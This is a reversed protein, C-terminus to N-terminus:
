IIYGFSCYELFNGEAELQKTALDAKGVWHILALPVNCWNDGGPFKVRGKIFCIQDADKFIIEQWARIGPAAPILMIIQCGLQAENNAKKVWDYITQTTCEAKQAKTLERFQKPLLCKGRYLYSRGYPPNVYVTKVLSSSWSELLGNHAPYIWNEKAKVLSSNNSCPDLDISGNFTKRVAEVIYEPTNWDLNAADAIAGAM